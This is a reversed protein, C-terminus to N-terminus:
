LFIIDPLYYEEFYEELFLVIKEIRHGGFSTKPNWSAYFDFHRFCIRMSGHLRRPGESSAGDRGNDRRRGKGTCIV